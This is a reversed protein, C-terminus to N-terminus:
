KPTLAVLKTAVDGSVNDRVAISLRRTDPRIRSTFSYTTLTDDDKKSDAEFEQKMEAVDSADGLERGGAVFVSFSGKLKGQATPLLALDRAHISVEVPVLLYRGDRKPEGVAVDFGPRDSAILLFYLSATVLDSTRRAESLHVVSRRARVHYARNKTTVKIGRAKDGAGPKMHYGISYYSELERAAEGLLKASQL